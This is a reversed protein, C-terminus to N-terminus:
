ASNPQPTSYITIVIQLSIKNAYVYINAILEQNSPTMEIVSLWVNPTSLSTSKM